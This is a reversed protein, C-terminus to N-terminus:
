STAELKEVEGGALALRRRQLRDADEVLLDELEDIDQTDTPNLHVTTWYTDAHALGARKSGPMSPLVHYGTLRRPGQDTTVTIDGSCIAICEGRHVAGVLATGARILITRAALGAAFAHWVPLEVGHGADEMARLSQELRDIQEARVPESRTALFDM